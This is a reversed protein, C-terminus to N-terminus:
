NKLLGIIILSPLMKILLILVFGCIIFALAISAITTGLSLAVVLLFPLVVPATTMTAVLFGWRLVPRIRLHYAMRMFPSKSSPKGPLACFVICAVASLVAITLIVTLSTSGSEITETISGNRVGFDYLALLGQAIVHLVFGISITISSTWFLARDAIRLSLESLRSLSCLGFYHIAKRLTNILLFCVALTPAIYETWMLQEPTATAFGFMTGYFQIDSPNIMLGAILPYLLCVCLLTVVQVTLVTIHQTRVTWFRETLHKVLVAFRNPKPKSWPTGQAEITNTSM